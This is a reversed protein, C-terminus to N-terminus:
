ESIYGYSSAGNPDLKYDVLRETLYILNLLLYFQIVAFIVMSVTIQFRHSRSRGGLAITFMFAVTATYVIQVVANVVRTARGFPFGELESESPPDGTIGNVIFTTLLFGALSFGAFVFSLLNYPLQLFLAAKRLPNHASRFLGRAM